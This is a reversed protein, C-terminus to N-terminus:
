EAHNAKVGFLWFLLLGVLFGAAVVGLTYFELRDLLHAAYQLDTIPTPKELFMKIQWEYVNMSLKDKIPEWIEKFTFGLAAASLLGGYIKRQRESRANIRDRMLEDLRELMARVEDRRERLGWRRRLVACMQETRFDSAISDIHCEVRLIDAKASLITRKWEEINIPGSSENGDKVVGIWSDLKEAYGKRFEKYEDVAEALRKAEIALQEFANSRESDGFLTVGSDHAIAFGGDFEIREMAEPPPLQTPSNIENMGERTSLLALWAHFSPAEPVMQYIDCHDANHSKSDNWRAISIHKTGNKKVRELTVRSEVFQLFYQRWLLPLVDDYWTLRTGFQHENIRRPAGLITYCGEEDYWPENPPLDKFKGKDYSVLPRPRDAPRKGEWRENELTELAVWMTELNAGIRPDLSVTMDNGTGAELPRYFALVSFGRKTWSNLRDTRALVKLIGATWDEQIALADILTKSETNASQLLLQFKLGRRLAVQYQQREIDLQAKARQLNISPFSGIGQRPDGCHDMLEGLFQLCSKLGHISSQQSSPLVAHAFMSFLCAVSSEPDHDIFHGKEWATVYDIWANVDFDPLTSLPRCELKAIFLSLSFCTDLSYDEVWISRISGVTPVRQKWREWMYDSAVLQAVSEFRKAKYGKHNLVVSFHTDEANPSGIGVLVQGVIDADAHETLKVDVNPLCM